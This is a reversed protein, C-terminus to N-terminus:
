FRGHLTLQGPGIRLALGRDRRVQMLDIVGWIGGAVVFVGGLALNLNTVFALRDAEDTLQVREAHVRTALADDHRGNALAGTLVASGLLLVGVGAIAWPAPSVRSAPMPGELPELDPDDGGGAGALFEEAEAEAEAAAEAQEARLSGLREEITARDEAEPDLELYREYAEIAGETDGMGELARALNYQLVPAPDLEYARRLLTVALELNGVRYADASERFLAAALEREEDTQALARPSSVASLTAVLVIALLPTRSSM